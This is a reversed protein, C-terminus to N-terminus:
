RDVLKEKVTKAFRWQDPTLYERIRRLYGDRDKDWRETDVFAIQGKVTFPVNRVGSDLGRFALLVTCLQRLGDNDLKGYLRKSDSHDLLEMKEVVLVHSAEDERAFVRPLKHLYKWPVVIRTLHNATIFEKLKEAGKVRRKYNANQEKMSIKDSYKKFLLRPAMPHSAVMIDSLDGEGAVDFSASRWNHSSAFMDPNCFLRQFDLATPDFM